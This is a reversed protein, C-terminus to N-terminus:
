SRRRVVYATIVLGVFALMVEFGPTMGQSTAAAANGIAYVNKDYSGVYVVGNAVAPSSFVYDGTKYSWKFAGTTANLAYTNNDYSGVYVVDNAVAPSSLIYGGTTFNWLKVGTTANLAYTNNDYSGVYVVANAVAPSSLIYGGTTLRWTLKGNSMNSGAVPSYDGIHTANYRFQMTNIPIAAQSSAIGASSDNTSSKASVAVAGISGIFLLAITLSLLKIHLRM